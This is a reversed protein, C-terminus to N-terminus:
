ASSTDLLRYELTQDITMEMTFAVMDGTTEDPFNIDFSMETTGATESRLANGARPDFWTTTLHSSPQVTMLFRLQKMMSELEARENPTADEPLFSQFFGIMMEGLDLEIALTASTTEIVFVEVGDVTETGTVMSEVTTTFTEGGFPMPNELTESWSDGVTVARDPLAPGSLAGPDMGPAAAGGMGGLAGMDGGLGGLPGRSDHTTSLIKGKEDVTVTTRVADMEAMEPIEGSDVPEGDVTGTVALDTFDGVITIDFTGPEAGEEVSHTFTTVGTLDLDANGPMEDGGMASPDGSTTMMINQRLELQYRTETGPEFQYSLLVAEPTAETSPPATTDASEEGCAAVVFVLVLLLSLPRRM